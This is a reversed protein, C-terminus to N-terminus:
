VIVPQNSETIVAGTWPWDILFEVAGKALAPKQHCLATAAWAAAEASAIDAAKFYYPCWGAKLATAM